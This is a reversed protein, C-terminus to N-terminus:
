FLSTEGFRRSIANVIVLLAFNIINNFLGVATSFSFNADLLGRRYIYTSIVDSAELNLDNQMLFVKEFGVNMIGGANLIILIIMTPVIAPVNIHFVRQLRNAGDIVAAEHLEPAVASLAALYIIAGWGANQWVGSWVYIHKFASPDTMFAHRQMGLFGRAFNVIGYSPSLFINVMGVLVVTSIFHPAYTVT